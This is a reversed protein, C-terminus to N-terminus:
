RAKTIRVIRCGREDGDGVWMVVEKLREKVVHVLHHFEPSLDELHAQNIQESARTAPQCQQPILAYCEKMGAVDNM